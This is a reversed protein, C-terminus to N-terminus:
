RKVKIKFRIKEWFPLYDVILKGYLHDIEHQLIRALLGKAKVEITHGKENLGKIVAEYPREIDVGLDLGVGEKAKCFHASGTELLFKKEGTVQKKVFM